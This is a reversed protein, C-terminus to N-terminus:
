VALIPDDAKRKVMSDYKILGIWRTVLTCGVGWEEEHRGKKKGGERGGEKRGKKGGEQRERGEKRVGKRVGKRGEKRGEKGEKREETRGKREEKRWSGEVEKRGELYPRKKRSRM